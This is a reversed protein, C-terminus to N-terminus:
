ESDAEEDPQGLQSQFLVGLAAAVLLGTIHPASYSLFCEVPETALSLIGVSASAAGFLSFGVMMLPRPFYLTLVGSVLVGGLASVVTVLISSTFTQMIMAVLIGGALGGIISRTLARLPVAIGAGLVGGIIGGVFSQYGSGMRAGIERGAFGCLAMLYIVIGFRLLRQGFLMMVLGAVTVVIALAVPLPRIVGSAVSAARKLREETSLAPSARMTEVIREISGSSSDDGDGNKPEAEQGLGITLLSAAVFTAVTM